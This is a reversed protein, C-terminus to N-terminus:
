KPPSSSNYILASPGSSKLAIFVFGITACGTNENGGGRLGFGLSTEM